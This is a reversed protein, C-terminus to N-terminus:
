LDCRYPFFYLTFTFSIQINKHNVLIKYM